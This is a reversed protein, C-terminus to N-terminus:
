NITLIQDSEADGMTIRYEGPLVQLEEQSFMDGPVTALPAISAKVKVRTSKGSDLSVRDYGIVEKM